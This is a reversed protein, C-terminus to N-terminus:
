PTPDVRQQLFSMAPHAFGPRPTSQLVPHAYRVPRREEPTRFNDGKQLIPRTEVMQGFQRDGAAQCPIWHGRGHADELYFEPYCHGPVWVTRAPVGNARCLAIFLSTLEECDGDKDQLAALAGKLPGERYQVNERVWDYLVTAAEWGSSAGATLQAALARIERHDSEIQPSPSLYPRLSRSPKAPAAWGSPDDPEHIERKEIEFTVIAQATEGAELRPVEIVMQRAGEGLDRYRLRRIQPSLEESVIRVTQEPWPTPTPAAAVVALAPASEAKLVIGFKWQEVQAPGLQVGGGDDGLVCSVALIGPIWALCVLKEILKRRKLQLSLWSTPCHAAIARPRTGRM